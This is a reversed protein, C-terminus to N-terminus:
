IEICENSNAFMGLLHVKSRLSLKTFPGLSLWINSLHHPNQQQFFHLHKERFHNQTWIKHRAWSILLFCFPSAGLARRLRWGATNPPPPTKWGKPKVPPALHLTCCRHLCHYPAESSWPLQCNPIPTETEFKRKPSFMAPSVYIKVICHINIYIYLKINIYMYVKKTWRKKIIYMIQSNLFSSKHWNSHHMNRWTWPKMCGLIICAKTEVLLLMAM